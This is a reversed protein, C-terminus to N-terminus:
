HYWGLDFVVAKKKKWARKLGNNAMMLDNPAAYGLM